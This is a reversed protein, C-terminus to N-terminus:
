APGEFSGEGPPPQFGVKFERRLREREAEEGGRIRQAIFGYVEAPHEVALQELSQKLVHADAGELVDSLLRSLGLHLVLELLDEVTAAEGTVAELVPAFANVRRFTADGILVQPV